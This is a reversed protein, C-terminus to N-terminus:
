HAIIDTIEVIVQQYTVVAGHYDRAECAQENSLAPDLQIGVQGAASAWQTRLHNTPCIVLVRSAARDALYQHAIRLAFRTKGAAPTATVLYDERPQALVDAVARTQWDRLVAKWPALTVAM